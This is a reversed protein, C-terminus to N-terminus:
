ESSELDQATDEHDVEIEHWKEGVQKYIVTTSCLECVVPKRDNELFREIYERSNKGHDFVAPKEFCSYCLTLKM